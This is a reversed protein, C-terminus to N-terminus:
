VLPIPKAIGYGQAYDVGISRLKELIEANEVFEAITKKGMVHGIDNISKVMAFDIPDSVIDKVFMGDIKLFDVPLNKLYAFSSLGSGFDDLSFLCGIEKLNKIINSANTLNVIAATETIEFCIKEPPVGTEKLKAIVFGLFDDDNLTQGSLNIACQYLGAVRSTDEALYHLAKAVVWRDIKSSLNYREAAPLFAGPPFIQGDEELRLLLEYHGGENCNENISIIDQRYLLFRDEPLAHNIRAVWQMHDRVSIVREDDPRYICVRNRGQDKAAYCAADAEKLIDSLHGSELTIPVLGISVGIRFSKNEWVFSFNEIAERQEDAVKVAKDVPCYEMLIGFEDGGLRALTDCKRITKLLITGLQRLLEDGAIHGCTDNIIKFQDLDLYCLAHESNDTRAKEVVIHLRREFERRNILGTLPDHAAQFYLQDSLKRAETIDDQIEVFNIIEGAHNKVPSIAARSWYLEGNKKRNQFEGRWEKGSLVDAWLKKYVEPSIQGATMVSPRKGEVEALTYGTVKTFAANVYEIEGKEDTILIISSSQEVAASLKRIHNDLRIEHLNSEYRRIAAMTTEPLSKFAESTADKVIYDFIGIKLAQVAAAESGHGTLMLLPFPVDLDILQQAFDLGTMGPLSYDTVVAQFAKPDALVLEFAEEARSCRILEFPYRSKSYTRKLSAFDDPNDEVVLVKLARDSAM